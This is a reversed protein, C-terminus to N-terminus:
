VFAHCIIFVVVSLIIGYLFVDYSRRVYKYKKGLRQGMMFIDETINSYLYDANNAIMEMKRHYEDRETKYFNEFALLNASESRM